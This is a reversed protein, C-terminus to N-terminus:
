VTLAGQQVSRSSDLGRGAECECCECALCNEVVNQGALSTGSQTASVLEQERRCTHHTLHVTHDSQIELLLLGTQMNIETFVTTLKFLVELREGAELM